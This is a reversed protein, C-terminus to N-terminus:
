ISAERLVELTRLLVPMLEKAEERTRPAFSMSLQGAARESLRRELMEIAEIAELFGIQGVVECSAMRIQLPYDSSTLIKVLIEGSGSCRNLLICATELSASDQSVLDLLSLVQKEGMGRLTSHLYERVKSPSRERVNRPKLVECIAHVIKSRLSLDQEILRYVLLSAALPSRRHADMECLRDMAEFRAEVKPSFLDELAQQLEASRRLSLEKLDRIGLFDKQLTM